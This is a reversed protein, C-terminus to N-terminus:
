RGASRQDRDALAQLRANYATLEADDDRDAQRDTREAERTDSRLWDRTVLLALVLTPMEGIGWAITGGIQQDGLLDPMWDLDLALFFGPALLWQGQMIALGFFAHAALTAFLVLLRLPASWKPPGPDRGILSWVFAYGTVTFHITMFAHGSHTTLAWEFLDTWYFAVLSAFFIVAAVVPNAVIAAWRSHVVALLIERPGLTKDHRVTLARLALTIASGSVLFIPILMMLAMHQVMHMSFMVRGYVGPAGSTAFIFLLWGIVWMITWSIPWTDGRRRLRAVGALYLGIAVVATTGFLWDFQWATLWVSAEYPAPEPFGTLGLVRDLVVESAVPPQTRGLAVALGMTISMIVAEVTALRVFAGTREVGRAIILRRQAVGFFGLVILAIVKAWIVLWYPSTLDSLTNAQLVAFLVGSGGVALFSWLAVTSYRRVCAELATGLVPRLLILALLGGVWLCVSVLHILMATVAQEHGQDGSAHGTFSLPVLAILAVLFTWALAGRTRAWSAGVLVVLVIGAEILPLRILDMRSLNQWFSDWFGVGGIPAGYATAFTTVANTGATAAWVAGSIVAARAATARRQSTRSEPAIFAGILLLGITLAASLDHVVRLATGGFRVLPGADGLQVPDLAGTSYAVLLAVPVAM